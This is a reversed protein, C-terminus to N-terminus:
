SRTSLASCSISSMSVLIALMDLMTSSIVRTPAVCMEHLHQHHLAWDIVKSALRM